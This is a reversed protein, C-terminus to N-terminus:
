HAQCYGACASTVGFSSFLELVLSPLPRRRPSDPSVIISGRVEVVMDCCRVWGPTPLYCILYQFGVYSPSFAGKWNM